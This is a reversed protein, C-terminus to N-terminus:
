LPQPQSRAASHRQAPGLFVLFLALAPFTIYIALALSWNAGFILLSIAAMSTGVAAGLILAILAM